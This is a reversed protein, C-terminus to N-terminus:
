ALSSSPCCPPRWPVYWSGCAPLSSCRPSCCCHGSVLAVAQGLGVFVLLGGLVYMLATVFSEPFFILIAAFAISGIAVFPTAPSFNRVDIFTVGEAEARRRASAYRYRNIYHSALSLLAMAAFLGGIAQILVPTMTQPNSVLLFGVLMACLARFIYITLRVPFNFTSLCPRPGYNFTSLQINFSSHQFVRGQATTSLKFNFTSLHINFSVAKPRLQFNLTSLQFNLASVQFKFGSVRLVLAKQQAFNPLHPSM